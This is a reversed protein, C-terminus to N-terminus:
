ISMHYLLEYQVRITYGYAYPQVMHTYAYPIYWVRVTYVHTHYLVSGNSVGNTAGKSKLAVNDSKMPDVIFLVILQTGAHKIYSVCFM